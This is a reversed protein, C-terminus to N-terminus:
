RERIVIEDGAQLGATIEVSDQTTPGIVVEREGVERTSPDIVSVWYSRGRDEVAELPVMLAAEKSYVVIRLRSSMGARIQEKQEEDLPDLTVAVDFQPAGRARPDPQSAVHTVTGQLRLGGFANGTVTVAQGVAIRVVDVEDVRATAAMRSFDGITAVVQGKGVKSGESLGARGSGALVVGSLPAHIQSQGLNEALEQLEEEATSLELAAKALAEQGGRARAAALDEQAAEFDLLQGQYQREADEHDSAPILGQELLFAARKLQKEQSELALRARAFSRRAEAMEPGSEWDKVTEFARLAEIHKVQAERHLRVTESTNLEILLDGETVAQGQRFHVVAIHSELPSTVSVSRWPELRGALSITERVPEPELTFTYLGSATDADAEAIMSSGSSGGIFPVDFHDFPQWVYAGAGLFVGIVLVTAMIRAVQVKKLTRALTESREEIQRYASQLESHQAEAAKAMRLETERLERIETIDSFVAILAMPVSVGGVTQRIYSTSVSLSRPQGGPDLAVVQRGSESEGAVTSLMLESFEELEPHPVFVEAFSKGLVEDPAMGLIRGAAANFVTITGGREVVMVGDLLNELVRGHIDAFGDMM